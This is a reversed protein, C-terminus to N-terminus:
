RSDDEDEELESLLRTVNYEDDSVTVHPLM